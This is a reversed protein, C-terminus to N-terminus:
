AEREEREMCIIETTSIVSDLFRLCPLCIAANFFFDLAVKNEFVPLGSESVFIGARTQMGDASLFNEFSGM